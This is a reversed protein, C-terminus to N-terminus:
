RWVGNTLIKSSSVSKASNGLIISSGSIAHAGNPLILKGNIGGSPVEEEATVTIYALTIDMHRDHQQRGGIVWAEGAPYGWKSYVDAREYVTNGSSSNFYIAHTSGSSTFGDIECHTDDVYKKAGWYMSEQGAGSSVRVWEVHIAIDQLKGNEHLRRLTNRYTPPIYFAVAYRKPSVYGVTTRDVKYYEEFNYNGSGEYGVLNLPIVTQVTAM